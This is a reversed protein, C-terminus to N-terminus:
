TSCEKRWDNDDWPCEGAQICDWEHETPQRFKGVLEAEVHEAYDGCRHYETKGEWVSVGHPANDLGFDELYALGAEHMEFRVHPGVTWLVVGRRYADSAVVALSPKDWASSPYGDWKDDSM